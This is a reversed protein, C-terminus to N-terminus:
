RHDLHKEKLLVKKVAATENWCDHIIADYDKVHKPFHSFADLVDMITQSQISILKVSDWDTANEFVDSLTKLEEEGIM